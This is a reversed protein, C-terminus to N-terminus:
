KKKFVEKISEYIIKKLCSETIEANINEEPREEGYPTGDDYFLEGEPSLWIWEEDPNVQVEAWGGEFYEDADVFWIKSIFGFKENIFNYKGQYKVRIPFRDREDWGFLMEDFWVDFLYNRKPTMINWKGGFEVIHYRYSFGSRKNKNKVKDKIPHISDFTWTKLTHASKLKLREPTPPQKTKREKKLKKQVWETHQRLEEQYNEWAEQMDEEDEWAGENIIDKYM